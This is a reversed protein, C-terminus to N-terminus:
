ESLIPNCMLKHNLGLQTRFSRSSELNIFSNRRINHNRSNQMSTFLMRLPRNVIKYLLSRILSFQMNSVIRLWVSSTFGSQKSNGLRNRRNFINTNQEMLSFLKKPHIIRSPPLKPARNTKMQPAYSTQTSPPFSSLASYQFVQRVKCALPGKADSALSRQVKHVRSHM